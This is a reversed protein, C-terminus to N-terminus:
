VGAHRHRHHRHHHCHHDIVKVSYLVEEPQKASLPLEYGSKRFVNHMIDLYAGLKARELNNASKMVEIQLKV